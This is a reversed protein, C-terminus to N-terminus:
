QQVGGRRLASFCVSIALLFSARLSSRSRIWRLPRTTEPDSLVFDCNCHPNRHPDGIVSRIATRLLKGRNNNDRSDTTLSVVNTGRTTTTSSTTASSHPITRARQSAGSSPFLNWLQEPPAARCGPHRHLIAIVCTSSGTGPESM